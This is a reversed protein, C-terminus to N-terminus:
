QVHLTVLIAFNGKFIHHMTFRGQRYVQGSMISSVLAMATSVVLCLVTQAQPLLSIRANHAYVSNCFVIYVPVGAICQLAVLLLLAIDFHWCANCLQANRSLACPLAVQTAIALASRWGILLVGTALFSVIVFSKDPIYGRQISRLVLATQLM